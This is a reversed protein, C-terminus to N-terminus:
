VRERDRPVLALVDLDPAAGLSAVVLPDNM